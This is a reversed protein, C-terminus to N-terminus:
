GTDSSPSYLHSPRASLQTTPGDPRSAEPHRRAGGPRRPAPVPETRPRAPVADGAPRPPASPVPDPEHEAGTTPTAATRQQAAARAAPLEPAARPPRPQM